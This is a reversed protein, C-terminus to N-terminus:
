CVRPRGSATASRRAPTATTRRTTAPRRMGWSWGSSTSVHREHLAKQEDSRITDYPPCVLDGLNYEKNQTNFRTGAFPLVEAMFPRKHLRNPCHDPRRPGFLGGRLSRFPEPPPHPSDLGLSPALAGRTGTGRESPGAPLWFPAPLDASLTGVAPVGPQRGLESGPVRFERDDGRFKWGWVGVCSRRSRTSGTRRRTSRAVASV